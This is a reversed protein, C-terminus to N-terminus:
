GILRKSGLLKLLCPPFTNRLLFCITCMILTLMKLITYKILTCSCLKLKEIQIHYIILIPNNAQPTFVKKGNKFYIFLSLFYSISFIFLLFLFSLGIWFVYDGAAYTNYHLM